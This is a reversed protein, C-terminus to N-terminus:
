SLKRGRSLRPLAPSLPVDGASCFGVYCLVPRNKIALLGAPMLRHLLGAAYADEGRASSTWTRGAQWRDRSSPRVRDFQGRHGQYQQECRADLYM